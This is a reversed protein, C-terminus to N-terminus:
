KEVWIFYVKEEDACKYELCIEFDTPYADGCEGEVTGGKKIDSWCTYCECNEDLWDITIESIKIKEAVKGRKFCRPAIVYDACEWASLNKCNNCEEESWCNFLCWVCGGYLEYCNEEWREDETDERVYGCIEETDEGCMTEVVKEVEYFIEADQELEEPECKQTTEYISEWDKKIEEFPESKIITRWSNEYFICEKEDCAYKYGEVYCFKADEVWGVEYGNYYMETVTKNCSITEEAILKKGILEHEEGCNEEYVKFTPKSYINPKLIAYVVIIGALSISIMLVVAIFASIKSIRIKRPKKTM